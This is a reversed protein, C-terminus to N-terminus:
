KLISEVFSYLHSVIGYYKIIDDLIIKNRCLIAKDLTNSSITKEKENDKQIIVRYSDNLKGYYIYLPLEEHKKTIVSTINCLYDSITIIGYQKYKIKNTFSGCYKKSDLFNNQEAFKEGILEDKYTNALEFLEEEDIVYTREKYIYQELKNLWVKGQEENYFKKPLEFKSACWVKYDNKLWNCNNCLLGCKKVENCIKNIKNKINENTNVGNDLRLRFQQMLDGITFDKNEEIIHDYCLVNRIQTEDCLECKDGLIKKLEKDIICGFSSTKSFTTQNTKVKHCNFCLWKHPKKLEIILNSMSINRISKITNGDERLLKNEPELHDFTLLEENDLGCDQCKNDCEEKCTKDILIVKPDIINKELRNKRLKNSRCNTCVKRNKEFKNLPLMKFCNSCPRKTDNATLNQLM